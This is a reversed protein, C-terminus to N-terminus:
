ARRIESRELTADFGVADVDVTPWDGATLREFGDETVLWTDEVKAGQVTPNWAYAMPAAVPDDADPSAKWERGAYGAAGGQHHQRWEGSYGLEDYARRIEDFADVATGGEAAVSRCAALATAEVRGAADTREALWEPADFAVTRTVSACLGDRQAVVSAHVFEGLPADSPPFHRYKQARESGGVLVVPAHIGARVLEGTLDGALERETTDPTAAECVREVAAAADAGLSRYREVDEDLLPQRLPSADVEELGPVDFDAAAPTPSVEAVAEALSADYWDVATVDVDASLEEDALRRAEINNTVVSVADGDYGAAAVGTPGALSIVNDGGTLWAFSNPSAFWVAELDHSELHEDLRDLRSM